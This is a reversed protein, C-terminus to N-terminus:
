AGHEGEYVPTNSAATIGLAVGIGIWLQYEADGTWGHADTWILVPGAVSYAVYAVLRVWPPIRTLPNM